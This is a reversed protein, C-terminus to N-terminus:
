GKAQRKDIFAGMEEKQEKTMWNLAVTNISFDIATELDTTMWKNIIDKQAALAWPSKAALLNIWAQTESELQDAPVVRTILGRSEAKSANWNMGTFCLERAGMFGVCKPIIAAEVIAPIGRHINPLGFESHESALIIDGSLAMELGAGLCLGNVMIVVPKELFRLAGFALHLQQGIGRVEWPSLDKVYAVDIGASFARDCNSDIVVVRIEIDSQIVKVVEIIESLMQGNIANLVEARNLTIRGEPPRRHYLIAKGTMITREEKLRYSM